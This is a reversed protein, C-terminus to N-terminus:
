WASLLIAVDPSGVVCDGDLDAPCSDCNTCPGWANLLIAVDASNVVGDRNLDEARFPPPTLALSAAINLRGAGFLVDNGPDGIDTAGSLILSRVQDRTLAPNYGWILAAAGSVHPTAMSTGNKYVYSATGSLSWVNLGPAAIDVEPGFNSFSARADRNDTAAVAITENWRAPAAVNTNGSNGTAACMIAGQAHAYQVAQQFVTSFAYFQLSMNVIRAGHDVAWILGTAVNSEFGSCGNVVVVPLLRTNWALGSMGVGNGGRAAIIGAVHTGHNCEDITSTTGDPVNIGPLIRGSLEPHADIGSDLVAVVIDSGHTTNWATTAGVDAGPIGATGGVFQGTNQLAYQLGFDPDNPIEALGGEGDLEAREIAGSLRRLRAVAATASAGPALEARYWRDLGLAKATAADRPAGIWPSKLATVGADRLGRMRKSELAPAVGAPLQVMVHGRAFSGAEVLIPPSFQSPVVQALAHSAAIAIVSFMAGLARM